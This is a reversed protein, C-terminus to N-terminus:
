AAPGAGRRRAARDGLDAPVGRKGVGALGAQAIHKQGPRARGLLVFVIPASATGRAGQQLFRERGVCEVPKRGADAALVSAAVGEGFGREGVIFIWHVAAARGLKGRGRTRTSVQGRD